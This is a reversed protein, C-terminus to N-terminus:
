PRHFSLFFAAIDSSRGFGDSRAIHGAGRMQALPTMEPYHVERAPRASM